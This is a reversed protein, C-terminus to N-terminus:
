SCILCTFIADFANLPRSALGSSRAVAVADEDRDLALALDDTAEFRREFGAGAIHDSSIVTGKFDNGRQLGVDLNHFM